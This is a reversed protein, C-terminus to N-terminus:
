RSNEKQNRVATALATVALALPESSGADDRPCADAHTSAVHVRLAEHALKVLSARTASRQRDFDGREAAKMIQDKWSRSYSAPNAWQPCSSHRM